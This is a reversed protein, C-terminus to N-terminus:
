YTIIFNALGCFDWGRSENEVLDIYESYLVYQEFGGNSVRLYVEEAIDDIVVGTINFYHGSAYSEVNFGYGMDGFLHVSNSNQTSLSYYKLSRDACISTIVPKDEELMDIISELTGESDAEGDDLFPFHPNIFQVDADVCRGMELAAVEITVCIGGWFAGLDTFAISLMDVTDRVLEIYDSFVVDQNDVIDYLLLDNLAIVGCGNEVIQFDYPSISSWTEPQNFWDQDGGYSPDGQKGMVPHNYVKVYGSFEETPNFKGELGITKMNNREPWPDSIDSYFDGDTDDNQPDSKVKYEYWVGPGYLSYLLLHPRMYLNYTFNGGTQAEMLPIGDIFVERNTSVEIKIATGMEEADTLGDDDTDIKNPDSYYVKGNTGVMGQSEHIDWIGDGVGEDVDIDQCLNFLRCFEIYPDEVQGCDIIDGGWATIWNKKPYQIEGGSLLIIYDSADERGELCNNRYNTYVPLEYQDSSISNGFCIGVVKNGNDGVNRNSTRTLMYEWGIDTTVCHDAYSCPWFSEPNDWKMSEYTAKLSAIDSEPVYGLNRDIKGILTNSVMCLFQIRDRPGLNDILSFVFDHQEKKQEETMSVDHQLMVLYDIGRPNGDEDLTAPRPISLGELENVWRFEWAKKDYLMYTSFHTTNCSVTQAITNVTADCDIYFGSEEDYWLIGLDSASTTGDYSSDNTNLFNTALLSEDYHFTITAEEFDGEYEIEIPVGVLGFLDSSYTDVGYVDEITMVTDLCGTGELEVEVRNVVPREVNNVTEERTQLFREHNDPIGDNDSDTNSPDTGLKLEDGDIIDDGDSDPNLPDTEYVNVEDGDKIGDMDSDDTWLYTGLDLEQLITLGDGDNDEQDDSVGDGDTDSSLPDFGLMMELADDLQDDDSFESFPDTGMQEEYYDPIGDGDSDLVPDPTPTENPTPVVTPEPTPTETPVVTVTPFVTLVPAETVTPDPEETLIPLDTPVPTETPVVSVEPEENQKRKEIETNIFDIYDAIGNVNKDELLGYACCISTLTVDDTVFPVDTNLENGECDYEM